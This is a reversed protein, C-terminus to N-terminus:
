SSTELSSSVPTSLTRLARLTRGHLAQSLELGVVASAGRSRSHRVRATGAVDIGPVIADVRLTVYSNQPVSTPVTIRLGTDSLDLCQGRAFRPQGDPGIWSITAVADCAIRDHRRVSKAPM